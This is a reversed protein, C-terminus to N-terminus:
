NKKPPPLRRVQEIEQRSRLVDEGKVRAPELLRKFPYNLETYTFGVNYDFTAQGDFDRILIDGLLTTFQGGRLVGLLADSKTSNAKRIAEALLRTSVYGIIDSSNPEYGTRAVFKTVFALNEQERVTHWNFAYLFTAMIGDPMDAGLPRLIDLDGAGTAIVQVKEFFGHLNAQQIFAILDDGWLSCFLADPHAELITTIPSSFDRNGSNQAVEGLKQVDTKQQQLFEWFDANVGAGWGSDPGLFYYTRWPGRAAMLAATRAMVTGNTNTRIIYEHGYEETLAPAPALTNVFLVRMERAVQSVAFAVDNSLVGMVVDVQERTILRRFEKVAAAPQLRDDRVVYVIKRGLVGGQANIEEAAIEHGVVTDRPSITTLGSFSYLLGIKIPTKDASRAAPLSLALIVLMVGLTMLERRQM